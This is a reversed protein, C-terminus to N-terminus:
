WRKVPSRALKASIETALRLRMMFVVSAASSKMSDFQSARMAAPLRKVRSKVALPRELASASM